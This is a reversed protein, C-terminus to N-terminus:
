ADIDPGQVYQALADKFVVRMTANIDKEEQTMEEPYKDHIQHVSPYYLNRLHLLSWADYGDAIWRYGRSQLVEGIGARYNLPIPQTTLIAILHDTALDYLPKWALPLEGYKGNTGWLLTTKGSKTPM